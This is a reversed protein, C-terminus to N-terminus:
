EDGLRVDPVLYNRVYDEIADALPTIPEVYGAARLRGIDARTFYQYKARLSEPMDIFEIRPEVGAARFLANAVEVWTSTEGSGVNFLGVADSREALHLTMAVADKVYLFDRRQEGDAFDPRHSRFLQM